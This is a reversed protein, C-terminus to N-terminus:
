RPAFVLEGFRSYEHYSDDVHASEWLTRKGDNYDM